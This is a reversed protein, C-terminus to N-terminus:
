REKLGGANLNKATLLNRIFMQQVVSDPSICFSACQAPTSEGRPCRCLLKAGCPGKTKLDECGTVTNGGKFTDGLDDGM